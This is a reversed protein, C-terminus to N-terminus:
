ARLVEGTRPAPLPGAVGARVRCALVVDTGAAALLAAGLM